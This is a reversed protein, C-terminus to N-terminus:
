NDGRLGDLIVIGFSIFIMFCFLIKALRNLEHELKGNKTSAERENMMTRTEKGTYVVMGLIYGQSAL